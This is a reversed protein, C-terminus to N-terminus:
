RRQSALASVCAASLAEHHPPAMMTKHSGPVDIVQIRSCLRSWGLDRPTSAAHQESRFLIAELGNAPERLQQLWRESAQLRLVRDLAQDLPFWRRSTPHRRRDPRLRRLIGAASPRVLGRAVYDWGSSHEPNPPILGMRFAFKSLFLSAVGPRRPPCTLRDLDPDLLLVPGLDYGMASLLQAAAYAVVGGFSFGILSVRRTPILEMSQVTAGVLTEFSWGAELMEPWASYRPTIVQAERSLARRFPALLPEDGGLGPALVVVPKNDQHVAPESPRTARLITAIVDSPRMGADFLDLSLELGLERELEAVFMLVQLSNGGAEEWREDRALSRPGFLGAWSRSVAEDVTGREPGPAHVPVALSEPGCGLRDLAQLAKMDVKMSPLLPLADLVHLSAPQLAPSLAARLQTRLTALATKAVMDPRLVVFGVLVADGDLQRAAVAADLVAGSRRLAAELEAPEVRQGRVKVQRDRRGASRLLGDPGLRVLDGTRFTRRALNAPDPTMDGSVCAGKEWRGLAVFPSRVVLEGVEGDPAPAGDERAIQYELGPLLRGLPVAIDDPAADRPVFWQAGTTETSSFGVQVHCSEPLSGHLLAIDSWLVRDGGVRVLRISALSAPRSVDRDALVSRLLSPVAYVVTVAARDILSRLERFSSRRSNAVHLTGGCLLSTLVERLGAITCPSSLPLFRDAVGLHGANVHQAVRQLLARQSNVIGKPKGTSGSTYLIVAPDDAGLCGVSGPLVAREDAAIDDICIVVSGGLGTQSMTASTTLLASPRAEALVARNHDLPYDLDLPVFPRGAALCGLMAPAFLASNPMLLAVPGLPASESIRRAIVRALNLAASFTLSVRGDDIAPCAPQRSVIKEFCQLIPCDVWAESFPVFPRDAPGGADLAGIAPSRWTERGAELLQSAFASM